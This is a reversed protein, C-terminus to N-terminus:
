NSASHGSEVVEPPKDLRAGCRYCHTLATPWDPNGLSGGCSDCKKRVVVERWLVAAVMVTFLLAVKWSPGFVIFWFPLVTAAFAITSWVRYRQTGRTDKRRGFLYWLVAWEVVIVVFFLVFAFTTQDTWM